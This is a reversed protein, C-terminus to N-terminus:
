NTESARKNFVALINLGRGLTLSVFRDMRSRIHRGGHVSDIRRRTSAAWNHRSFFYEPGFTRILQKSFWQDCLTELETATLWDEVPQPEMTPHDRFYTDRYLGNPTTLILTGDNKLSSAIQSIFQSKDHVHEIVESTVILDFQTHFSVDSLTGTRIDANPVRITSNRAGSGSPEVGFLSANGQTQDNISELIWGNGCGVDLIKPCDSKLVSSVTESVIRVRASAPPRDSQNECDWRKNYYQQQTTM